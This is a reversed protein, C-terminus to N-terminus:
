GAEAETRPVLVVPCPAHLACRQAVSGLLAGSIGSRGHNGLVLLEADAAHDILITSPDGHETLARVPTGPADPDVTPLTATLWRRAEETVAQRPPPAAASTGFQLPQQWVAVASIVAGTRRAHEVAWCLAAASEASGDIGVVIPRPTEETGDARDPHLRDVSESTTPESPPTPERTTM